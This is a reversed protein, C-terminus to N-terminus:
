RARLKVRAIRVILGEHGIGVIEERAGLVTERAAAHSHAAPNRLEVLRALQRPLTGLLWDADPRALGARVVAATDTSRELLSRLAGLTLHPV